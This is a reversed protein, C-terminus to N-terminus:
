NAPKIRNTVEYKKLTSPAYDTEIRQRMQQNHYNVMQMLTMDNISKGLFSDIRNILYVDGQKFQTNYIEMIRNTSNRIYENVQRALENDGKAKGKASDWKTEKILFGTTVQIRESKYSVLLM